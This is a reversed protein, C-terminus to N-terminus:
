NFNSLKTNLLQTRLSTLQEQTSIEQRIPRITQFLDHM